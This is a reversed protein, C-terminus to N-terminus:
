TSMDKFGCPGDHDEDLTCHVPFVYDPNSFTQFCIRPPDESIRNAESERMKTFYEDATQKTYGFGKAETFKLYNSLVERKTILEERRKTVNSKAENMMEEENELHEINASMMNIYEAMLKPNLLFDPPTNETTSM